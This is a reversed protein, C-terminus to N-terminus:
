VMFFRHGKADSEIMADEEGQWIVILDISRGDVDDLMDEYLGRPAGEQWEAIHTSGVASCIVTVNDNPFAIEAKAQLYPCVYLGNSQGIVLFNRNVSQAQVPVFSFTMILAITSITLRKM